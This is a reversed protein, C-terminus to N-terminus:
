RAGRASLVAPVTLLLIKLDLWLSQNCIYEVDMQVIGDFSVQSRGKIQWLGTIGPVAALRQRHEPMYQRVEYDIPPRPGVLSMEGRVVNFLQPLEDLSTKRLFQGMRTIRPDCEPKFVPTEAATKETQGEIFAQMFAEHIASDCNHKMTRFKYCTFSTLAWSEDTGDSTRKAGVRKQAFIVPGSSDLKILVAVLLLLPLLVLLACISLTLDLVRKCFFYVERRRHLIIRSTQQEFRVDITSSM